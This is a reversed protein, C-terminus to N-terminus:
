KFTPMKNLNVIQKLPIKYKEILNFARHNKGVSNIDHADSDIIFQVGTKVMKDIDSKSFNIRKGNLEIYIGKEKCAKAIRECDVYCGAYNLHAIINIRHKEIANLYAQTNREIQKKTPKKRLLNPLVFKFFEQPKVKTMKHFGLIVLDLNKLEEDSIDIDGNRSILNAEIGLLVKIDYKNKISEIDARMKDLDGHKIHYKSQYSHETIAIAKLGLEQAKKVNEEITSTGHTYTTHTHFDGILNM